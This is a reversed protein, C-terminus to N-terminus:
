SSAVELAETAAGPNARIGDEGDLDTIRPTSWETKVSESQM